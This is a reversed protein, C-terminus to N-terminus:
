FMERVFEEGIWGSSFRYHDFQGAESRSGFVNYVKGGCARHVRGSMDSRRQRKWEIGCGSCRAIVKQKPGSKLAAEHFVPDHYTARPATGMARAWTRWHQDHNTTNRSFFDLLHALEHRFTDSVVKESSFPLVSMNIGGDGYAYHFQGMTAGKSISTVPKECVFNLCRERNKEPILHIVRLLDDAAGYAEAFEAITKGFHETPIQYTM